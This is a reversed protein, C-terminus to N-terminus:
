LDVVALADLQLLVAAPVALVGGVFLSTSDM